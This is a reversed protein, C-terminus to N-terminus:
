KEYLETGYHSSFFSDDIFINFFETMKNYVETETPKESKLIYDCFKETVEGKIVKGYKWDTNIIKGFQLANEIETKEENWCHIEFYKTNKLKERMISKWENNNSKLIDIKIGKM